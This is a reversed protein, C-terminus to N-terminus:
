ILRLCGKSDIWYLNKRVISKVDEDSIFDKLMTDLKIGKKLYIKLETDDEIRYVFDSYKNMINGKLLNKSIDNIYINWEVVDVLSEVSPFYVPITKFRVIDFGDDINKKVTLLVKDDSMRERMFVDVYESESEYRYPLAPGFSFKYKKNSFFLDFSTSFFTRFYDIQKLFSMERARGKKSFIFRYRIM